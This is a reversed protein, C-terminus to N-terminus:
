KKDKYNNPDLQGIIFLIGSSILGFLILKQIMEYVFTYFMYKEIYLIILLLLFVGFIFISIKDFLNLKM